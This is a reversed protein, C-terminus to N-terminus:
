TRRRIRQLLHTQLAQLGNLNFLASPSDDEVHLLADELVAEFVLEHHFVVVDLFECPPEDPSSWFLLLIVIM